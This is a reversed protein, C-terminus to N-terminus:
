RAQWLSRCLRRFGCLGITPWSAAANAASIGRIPPSDPWKRSPSLDHFHLARDNVPHFRGRSLHPQFVQVLRNAFVSGIGDRVVLDQYRFATTAALM